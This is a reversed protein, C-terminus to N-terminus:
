NTLEVLVVKQSATGMTVKYNTYDKDPSRPLHCFHRGLFLKVLCSVIIAEGTESSKQEKTLLKSKM